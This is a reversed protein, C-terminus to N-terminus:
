EVPRVTRRRELQDIGGEVPEFGVAGARAAVEGVEVGALPRLEAAVDVVEHEVEEVLERRHLRASRPARGGLQPEGSLDAAPPHRQLALDVEGEACRDAALCSADEDLELGARDSGAVDVVEPEVGQQLRELHAHRRPAEGHVAEVTAM